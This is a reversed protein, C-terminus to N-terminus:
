FRRRKLNHYGRMRFRMVMKNLEKKNVEKIDMKIDYNVYYGDIVIFEKTKHNVFLMTADFAEDDIEERVFVCDWADITQYLYDLRKFKTKYDISLSIEDGDFFSLSDLWESIDWEVIDKVSVTDYRVKFGANIIWNYANAWCALYEADVENNDYRKIAKLINKVQYYKEFANDLDFEKEDIKILFPELEEITCNVSCIKEFLENNYM